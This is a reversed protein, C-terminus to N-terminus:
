MRRDTAIAAIADEIGVMRFPQARKLRVIRVML